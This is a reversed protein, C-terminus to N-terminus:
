EAQMRREVTDALNQRAPEPYDEGETDCYWDVLERATAPWEARKEDDDEVANGVWKTEEFLATSVIDCFVDGDVDDRVDTWMSRMDEVTGGNEPPNIAMETAEAVLMEKDYDNIIAGDTTEKEADANGDTLRRVVQGPINKDNARSGIYYNSTLGIERCIEVVDDRHVQTHEYRTLATVVDTRAGQPTAAKTSGVHKLNIEAEPDNKVIERLQESDLVDDYDDPDYAEVISEEEGDDTSPADDTTLGREQADDRILARIYESEQDYESHAAVCADLLAEDDDTLNVNLRKSM